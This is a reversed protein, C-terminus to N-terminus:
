LGPAVALHAGGGQFKVRWIRNGGDDSVLLSGDRDVLVYVPRGFAENASVLFKTLFDEYYGLAHGDKFPLYVVKYGTPTSRNWSGHFAVFAGGRFHEPFSKGTYFAIGLAASHSQFLVDPVLARAVLDPRKRALDPQPNKGIYSYPWGYFGNPEIHTAYDPVLEDGLGDRENVASWLAGTVPEQALGVPNRLGSAFVELNSGDPNCRLIAARHSEEESVNTQSGVSIYLKKAKGDYLLNRTWHQRYGRGPLHPVIVEPKGTAKTDGARYPFRIVSSTNAVYLYDDVFAMGFPLDLGEAFVWRGEFKGDGDTDRLVSVRNAAPESLFVDGNSALVMARPMNFGAAAEIVSFGKPVRLALNKSDAVIRPSNAVSPTAFPPPLQTPSILNRPLNTYSDEATATVVLSLTAAAIAIAHSLRM